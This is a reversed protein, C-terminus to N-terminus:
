KSRANLAQQFERANALHGSYTSAFRHTGDLAPSACFYLYGNRDPNLVAELCERPPSCIPGPPLGAYKYTNYPSDIELHRLLIRNPKYDFCFAVTPDAQLLMGIRLRNLYVGAISPMEPKYRTEGSVISALTSVQLRTLGLEAAKADNAPTWFKKWAKNFVSFISDPSATWYVEYTDPIIMSFVNSPTFGFASLLVSDELARMVSVSDTMMQRSIRSAITGKNRITGAITLRVPSQWGNALMRAAYYSSVKGDVKYHGPKMKTEGDWLGEHKLARKLSAPRIVVGSDVLSSFVQQVPTDPWIYLDQGRTFNASRHDTWMLAFLSAGAVALVALAAALIYIIKKKAM